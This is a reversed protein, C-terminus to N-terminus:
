GHVESCLLHIEHKFILCIEVKPGIGMVSQVCGGISDNLLFPDPLTSGAGQGKTGMQNELNGMPEPLSQGQGPAQLDGEVWVTLDFDFGM